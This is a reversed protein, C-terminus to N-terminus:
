SKSKVSFGPPNIRDKSLLHMDFSSIDVIAFRGIDCNGMEDLINVLNGYNSANTAKIIVIPASKDSIIEDRQKWFDAESIENREKKKKLEQIKAIFDSNRNALYKHIGSLSLDTKTVVPDIGTNPDRTGEYYYVSNDKDLIITVARSARVQPLNPKAVSKSPMVIQRIQPKPPKVLELNVLLNYRNENLDQLTGMLKKIAEYSAAPDGKITIRMDKGEIVRATSIWKTLEENQSDYPIGIANEPKERAEAPRDLFSKMVNIPMGFSKITSFTRLEEPSFQIHYTEGMRTLLQEKNKLGNVNLTVKGKSQVQIVFNNRDSKKLSDESNTSAIQPSMKEESDKKEGPKGFAMLLLALLPLFTAVKWRWAKSNKLKNMMVIRNKIQCHNFSNALAFKQQGVSKQIILLQYKEADIGKTLTQDDAQFEHIDKMDHMLSYVLPNFWHFIKVAELFMLDYFHCFRIHEKEHALIVQHHNEYDKQSIFVLRGFSFAPIEKKIILLRYGEMQRSEAKRYLLFISFLGYVLILLSSFFGIAYGILLIERVSFVVTSKVKEPIYSNQVVETKEPLSHENGTFVSVMQVEMPKNIFTPLILKPIILSSLVLSLLVIRNLKFYTEKRMLSRFVLYLTSLCITSNLLYSLFDNM